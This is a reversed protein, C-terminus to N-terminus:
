GFFNNVFFIMYFFDCELIWYLWGIDCVVVVRWDILVDFVGVECWVDVYRSVEGEFDCNVLIVDFLDELFVKM